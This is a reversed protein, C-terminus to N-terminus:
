INILSLFYSFRNEDSFKSSGDARFSVTFVYKNKLTYNVRGLYSLLQTKSELVRLPLAVLQGYFPNTYTFQYTSFDEVSYLENVSKRVDYTVGIVANIRHRSNGKYYSLLNNIQYSSANVESINLQGNTFSGTWTSPGSWRRREKTRNNGGIRVSYKSDRICM